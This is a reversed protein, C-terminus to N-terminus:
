RPYLLGFLPIRAYSKIGHITEALRLCVKPSKVALYGIKRLRSYALDRLRKSIKLEKYVPKLYYKYRELLSIKEDSHFFDLIARSALEASKHAYYIGEGTLPDTFGAADGVLLIKDEGPTGIFSGSPASHSPFLSQKEMGPQTVNKLFKKFRDKLKKNKRILGWIGVVYHEKHPFIWGYGWKVNGLFLKPAPIQYDTKIKDQPVNIQFALALNNKFLKQPYIKRRVVSNAGDAGVLIKGRYSSGSKTFVVNNKVDINSVQHGFLIQCNINLALSVLEMDYKKRDVFYFPEPSIQAVKQRFKEYIFYDSSINEVKFQKVFSISFLEELLKRTKWTIAGACLKSRPFNAKDIVLVDLGRYSLLYGLTSGSPGAGVIIVDHLEKRVQNTM